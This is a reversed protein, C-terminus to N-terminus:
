NKELNGKPSMNDLFNDIILHQDGFLFSYFKLFIMKEKAVGPPINCSSLASSIIEVRRDNNFM